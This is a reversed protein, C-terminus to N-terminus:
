GSLKIGAENYRRMLETYIYDLAQYKTSPDKLWASLRLKVVPGNLEEIFVAPKPDDTIYQCDELIELAISKSSDIGSERLIMVPIHISLKGQPLNMIKAKVMDANAISIYDKDILDFLLTKQTKIEVIECVEGGALKVKDGVKYPQAFAVYIGTIIDQLVPQLALVIAFGLLGWGLVFPAVDIGFVGLVILTVTVLVVVKTVTGFTRFSTILGRQEKVRSIAINQIVIDIINYVIYGGVLVWVIYFIRDFWILYPNFINLNRLGLNVGVLIIALYIPWKTVVIILDDIKTGTHTVLRTIYKNVARVLIIAIPIFVIIVLLSSFINTIDAM